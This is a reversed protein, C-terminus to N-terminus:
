EHGPLSLPNAGRVLKTLKAPETHRNASISPLRERSESLAVFFDFNFHSQTPINEIVGTIKYNGTDNIIMTQGPVLEGPQPGTHITTVGFGRVWELLRERGNFADLARLEPQIPASKELQDQERPENRYGQLGLV